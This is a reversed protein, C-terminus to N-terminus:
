NSKHFYEEEQRINFDLEGSWDIPDVTTGFEKNIIAVFDVQFTSDKVLVKLEEEKGKFFQQLAEYDYMKSYQSDKFMAYAGKYDEPMKIAIMHLHGLHIDDFAYDFGFYDQLKLWDMTSKFNIRSLNTDVLIFIHEELKMGMEILSFDGIGVGLKFLNQLRDVLPEGYSKLCPLLYKKTKNQYITGLQIKM